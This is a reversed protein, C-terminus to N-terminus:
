LREWYLEVIFRWDALEERGGERMRGTERERKGAARGTMREEGGERERENSTEISSYIITEIRLWETQSFRLCQVFYLTFYTVSHSVIRRWKSQILRCGLCPRSEERWSLEEASMQWRGGRWWDSKREGKEREALWNRWPHEVQPRPALYAGDIMKIWGSSVRSCETHLVWCADIIASHPM